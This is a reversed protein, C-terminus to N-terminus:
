PTPELTARIVRTVEELAPILQGMSTEHTTWSRGAPDLVDDDAPDGALEVTGRVAAVRALTARVRAHPDAGADTACARLEADTVHASLRAFERVTFARRLLTPDLEVVTQRHARTMAVVLDRGQALGEALWQARHAAVETTPIGLDAAIERAPRTMGEGLRPQTGASAVQVNLGALHLRLYQEALPSRVINGTCVTLIAIPM